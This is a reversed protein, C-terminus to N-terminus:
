ENEIEIKHNDSEQNNSENDHNDSENDRFFAKVYLKFINLQTSNFVIAKDFKDHPHESYFSIDDENIDDSDVTIYINEDNIITIPLHRLNKVKENPCNTIEFKLSNDNIDIDIDYPYLNLNIEKVFSLVEIYLPKNM